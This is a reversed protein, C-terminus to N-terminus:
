FYHNVHLANNLSYCMLEVQEDLHKSFLIGDGMRMRTRPVLSSSDKIGGVVFEVDDSSSVILTWEHPHDLPVYLRKCPYRVYPQVSVKRLVTMGEVYTDTNRIKHKVVSHVRNPQTGINSLIHFSM